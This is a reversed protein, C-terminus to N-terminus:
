NEEWWKDVDKPESFSRAPAPLDKDNLGAFGPFLSKTVDIRKPESAFRLHAPRMMVSWVEDQREFPVEESIAAELSSADTSMREIVRDVYTELAEVTETM